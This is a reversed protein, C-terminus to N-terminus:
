IAAKAPAVITATKTYKNAHFFSPNDGIIRTKIGQTNSIDYGEIRRPYNKLGLVAQLEAAAGTTREESRAARRERKEIDDRLNKLAMRVMKLKEGRRPTLIYVRRKHLETLLQEMVEREPIDASVLIEQPPMNAPGYYQLMFQTLVEGLPEDAAGELTYRESGILRGSRVFMLQVLADANLPMVAIM